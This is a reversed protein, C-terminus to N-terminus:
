REYPRLAEDVAEIVAANIENHVRVNTARDSKMVEVKAHHVAALAAIDVGHPTGFIREFQEHQLASAQPLFSFIGGGDNDVVVIRLDIDRQDIGILATSDHLFAIDGLLVTTPARSALAVGIATSITGDIGNAGRNAHVTIDDRRPAYWEVDRIPMSSALVLHGGSPVSMVVDRAIQPETPERYGALVSAIAAEAADDAARWRALWVEDGGTAPAAAPAFEAATHAQDTWSEGVVIEHAGTAALWENVVRSAPPDGIRYIVVPRLVDAAFASRLIPDAHAIVAPHGGLGSRGDAIVPHGSTVVNSPCGRGAVILTTAGM